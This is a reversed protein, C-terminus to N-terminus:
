CQIINASSATSRPVCSGRMWKCDGNCWQRGVYSGDARYPCWACTSAEHGGCNVQETASFLQKNPVM